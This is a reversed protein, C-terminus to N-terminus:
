RFPIWRKREQVQKDNKVNKEEAGNFGFDLCIGIQNVVAKEYEIAAAAVDQLATGTSDFIIIEEASERGTKTGAIVHGM